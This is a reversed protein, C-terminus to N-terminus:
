EEGKNERKKKSVAEAQVRDACAHCITQQSPKGCVACIPERAVLKKPPYSVSPKQAM